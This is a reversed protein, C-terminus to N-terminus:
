YRGQQKFQFYSKKIYDLYEYQTATRLFQVSPRYIRMFRRLDNGSLYTIEKVLKENFVFDVYKAGQWKAYMKQFAWRERNQKSLADLSGGCANNEGQKTGHVANFFTKDYDLSDLQYALLYGKVDVMPKLKELHLIYYSPQKENQIRIRLTKYNNRKLEILEGSKVM